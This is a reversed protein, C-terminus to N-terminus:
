RVAFVGRLVLRLTAEFDDEITPLRWDSAHAPHHFRTISDLIAFAVEATPTNTNLNAVVVDLQRGLEARIAVRFEESAGLVARVNDFLSPNGSSRVRVTEFLLRIWIELQDRPPKPASAIERLPELARFWWRRAVEERLAAKSTVHRYIAGHSVGLVRAVEVVTVKGPGFRRIVTEAADLIAERTLPVDAM